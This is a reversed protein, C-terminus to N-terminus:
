NTAMAWNQADEGPAYGLISQSPNRNVLPRLYMPHKMSRVEHEINYLVKGSEVDIIDEFRYQHQDSEQTILGKAALRRHPGSFDNIYVAIHHKDYPPLPRDTERFFLNQSSGAAVCAFRGNADELAAAQAGIIETYFRAIGAATGTPVDFEVYPIGVAMAGFRPNPAFCRIHNGWPCVAEIYGDREHCEFRTDALAERLRTLREPLANYDSVVVGVHGRVVQPKSMPLHFQQRGANIWMIVQGTMMYPDRTLGLGNIYFLAAKQQDPVTVNVHEFAVMNGLDETNRDYTKGKAMLKAIGGPADLGADGTVGKFGFGQKAPKAEAKKGNGGNCLEGLQQELLEDSILGARYAKFLQQAEFDKSAM